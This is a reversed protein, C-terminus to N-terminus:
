GSLRVGSFTVHRFTSLSDLEADARNHIATWVQQGANLRCIAVNGGQDDIEYRAGESVANSIVQNDVVLKVWTKHNNVTGTFFALLYLGDQPCVFIGNSPNYANGENTLVGDYVIIQNIGLHTEYHSLYASFAVPAGDARKHHVFSPKMKGSIDLVNTENLMLNTTATIEEEPGASDKHEDRSADSIAVQLKRDAEKSRHIEKYLRNIEGQMAEQHIEMKKTVMECQRGSKELHEIRELMAKERQIGETALREMYTIKTEMVYIRKILISIEERQLDTSAEAATPSTFYCYIVFCYILTIESMDM